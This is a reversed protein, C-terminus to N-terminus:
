IVLIKEEFKDLLLKNQKLRFNAATVSKRNQILCFDM